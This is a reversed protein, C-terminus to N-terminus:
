RTGEAHEAGAQHAALAAEAEQRSGYALGSQGQCGACEWGYQEGPNDGMHVIDDEDIRLDPLRDLAEQALRDLHHTASWNDGLDASNVVGVRPGGAAVTLCAPCDVGALDRVDALVVAGVPLDMYSQGCATLDEEHQADFHTTPTTSM